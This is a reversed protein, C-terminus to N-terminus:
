AKTRTAIIEAARLLAFDYGKTGFGAIVRGNAAIQDPSNTCSRSPAARIATRPTRVATAM